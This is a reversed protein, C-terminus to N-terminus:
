INLRKNPKLTVPHTGTLKLKNKMVCKWMFDLLIFNPNVFKKMFLMGRQPRLNNFKAQQIIKEHFVKWTEFYTM